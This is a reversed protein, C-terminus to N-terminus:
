CPPLDYTEKGMEGTLDVSGDAQPRKAKSSVAVLSLAFTAPVSSSGGSGSAPTPGAGAQADKLARRARAALTKPLCEQATNM